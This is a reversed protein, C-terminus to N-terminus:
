FRVPSTQAREGLTRSSRQEAFRTWPRPERLATISGFCQIWGPTAGFLLNLGTYSPVARAESGRCVKFIEFPSCGSAYYLSRRKIGPFDADMASGAPFHPTPHSATSAQARPTACEASTHTSLSLELRGGRGDGSASDKSLTHMPTVRTRRERAPTELYRTSALLNAKRM